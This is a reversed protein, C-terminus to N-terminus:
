GALFHASAALLTTVVSVVALSRADRLRRFTGVSWQDHTGVAVQRRLLIPMERYIDRGELATADVLIPGPRLRARPEFTGLTAGTESEVLGDPRLTASQWRVMNSAYPTARLTRFVGVLLAGLSLLFVALPVHKPSLANERSFLHGQDDVKRFVRRWRTSTKASQETSEEAVVFLGTVRDRYLNLKWPRIVHDVSSWPVSVDNCRPLGGAPTWAVRVNTYTTEGYLKKPKAEDYRIDVDASSKLKELDPEQLESDRVTVLHGRCPVVSDRVFTRVVFSGIAFVALTAIAVAVWTRKLSDTLSQM